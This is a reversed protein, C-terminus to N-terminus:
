FFLLHPQPVVFVIHHKQEGVELICTLHPHEVLVTQLANVLLPVFRRGLMRCRVAVQRWSMVGQTYAGVDLVAFPSLDRRQSEGNQLRPPVGPPRPAQVNEDERCHCHAHQKYYSADDAEVSTEVHLPAHRGELLVKVVAYFAFQTVGDVHHLSGRLVNLQATRRFGRHLTQAAAGSAYQFQHVHDPLEVLQVVHLHPYARLLVLHVLLCFLTEAVNLLADM